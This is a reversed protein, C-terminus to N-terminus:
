TDEEHNFNIPLYGESLNPILISNTIRPISNLPFVIFFSLNDSFVVNEIKFIHSRKVLKVRCHVDM